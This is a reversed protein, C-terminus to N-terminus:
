LGAYYDYGQDHWYDRPRTNTYTIRGIQKIQKIGYKLPAVLRLPAGHDLTLAQGNMEYALLTQPHLAVQREIGVYYQGDPTEFAIYEPLSNVFASPHFQSAEEIQPPFAELFDRLRVGGWCVIESWGEICKFETVIEIRPLIRVDTMSLLLGPIRQHASEPMEMPKMSVAAGKADDEHMAPKKAPSSNDVDDSEETPPNTGYMWSTVDRSYQSYSTVDGVGVLQLSWDEIKLDALGIDGNRRFSRVAKSREYEPARAEERFLGRAIASNFDLAKRFPANLGDIRSWSNLWKWLGGGIAAAAGTVLLSRRTRRRIEDPEFDLPTNDM